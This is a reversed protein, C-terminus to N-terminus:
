ELIREVEASGVQHHIPTALAGCRWCAHFLVGAEWWNPLQWAVVDGRRVGLQRLGGAVSSVLREVTGSDIAVDGDVVALGNADRPSSLLADLNPM